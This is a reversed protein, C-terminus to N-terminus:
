VDGFSLIVFQEFWSVWSVVLNTKILLHIEAVNKAAFPGIRTIMIQFMPEYWYEPHLIVNHQPWCTALTSIAVSSILILIGHLGSLYSVRSYKIRQNTLTSDYNARKSKTSLLDVFKEEKANAKNSKNHLTEGPTRIVYVQDSNNRLYRVKQQGSMDVVMVRSVGSISRICHICKLSIM